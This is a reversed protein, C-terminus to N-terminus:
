NIITLSHVLVRSFQGESFMPDGGSELLCLDSSPLTRSSKEMISAGFGFDLLGPM